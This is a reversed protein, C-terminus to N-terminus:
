VFFLFLKSEKTAFEEGKSYVGKWFHNTHMLAYINDVKYFFPSFGGFHIRDEELLQIMNRIDLIM